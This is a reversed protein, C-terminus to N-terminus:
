HLSSPPCRLRRAGQMCAYLHMCVGLAGPTPDVGFSNLAYFPSLFLLVFSITLEGLAHHVELLTLTALFAGARVRQIEYVLAQRAFVDKQSSSTYTWSLHDHLNQTTEEMEPLIEELGRRLELLSSTALESVPVALLQAWAHKPGLRPKEPVVKGELVWLQALPSRQAAKLQQASM